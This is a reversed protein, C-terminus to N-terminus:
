YREIEEEPIYKLFIKTFIYSNIFALLGFAFLVAIVAFVYTLVGGVLTILTLLITWPLHRTAMFLANKFTQKVPNEFQAQLPFIYILIFFAIVSIGVFLALLINAYSAEMKYVVYIDTGLITAVVLLIIWIITSQKFNEKFAKLFSKFIYGERDRVLKLTVYYLATTSAGITVIPLSFIVWLLNLLVVDVLKGIFRFFPNDLNFIRDM